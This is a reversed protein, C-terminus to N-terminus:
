MIYATVFIDLRSFVFLVVPFRSVVKQSDNVLRYMYLESIPASDFTFVSKEGESM